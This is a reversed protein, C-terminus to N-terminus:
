QFGTELMNMVEVEEVKVDAVAEVEEEEVVGVVDEEVLVVDEM